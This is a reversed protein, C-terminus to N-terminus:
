TADDVMIQHGRQVAEEAIRRLNMTHSNGRPTTLVLINGAQAAALLCSAMICVVLRMKNSQRTAM